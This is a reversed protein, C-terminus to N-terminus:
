LESKISEQVLIKQLGNRLSDNMGTAAPRGTARDVFVHVLDGVSKVEEVGQEFLAIEYTV